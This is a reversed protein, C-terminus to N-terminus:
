LHGHILALTTAACLIFTAPSTKLSHYFDAADSTSRAPSAPGNQPSIGSNNGTAPPTPFSPYFDAAGSASSIPSAPSNYPFDSASTAPSASSNYPSIGAENANELSSSTSDSESNNGTEPPTQLSPYFDAADSADRVPSAYSNYPLDSASRAPSAPSNYPLIGGENANELPSSTPNSESQNGTAPPTQFSPYSDAADSAGRVPSASNNYPLIGGQNANEASSTLTSHTKNRSPSQRFSCTAKSTSNASTYTVNSSGSRLPPVTVTANIPSVARRTLHFPASQALIGNNSAVLNIQYGGCPKASSLAGIQIRGSATFVNRQVVQSTGTPACRAYNNVLVVDFSSPDTAVSTWVVTNFTNISWIAGAAPSIVQLALSEDIFILSATALLITRPFM